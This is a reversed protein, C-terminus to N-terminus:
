YQDAPMGLSLACQCHARVGIISPYQQIKIVRRYTRIKAAARVNEPNIITGLIPCRWNRCSNDIICARRALSHTEAWTVWESASRAQVQVFIRQGDLVKSQSERDVATLIQLFFTLLSKRDKEFFRQLFQWLQIL